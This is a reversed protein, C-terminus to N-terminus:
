PMAWLSWLVTCCYQDCRVAPVLDRAMLMMRLCFVALLATLQWALDPVRQFSSPCPAQLLCIVQGIATLSSEASAASM